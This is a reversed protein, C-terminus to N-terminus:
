RNLLASARVIPPAPTVTPWIRQPRKGMPLSPKVGLVSMEALAERAIAPAVFVHTVGYAKLAEAMFKGGTTLAM